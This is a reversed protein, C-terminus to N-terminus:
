LEDLSTLSTWIYVMSDIAYSGTRDVLPFLGPGCRPTSPSRLGFVQRVAERRPVSFADGLVPERNSFGLTSFTNKQM